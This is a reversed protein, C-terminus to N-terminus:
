GGKEEGWRGDCEKVKEVEEWRRVCQCSEIGPRTSRGKEGSIDERDLKGFYVSRRNVM